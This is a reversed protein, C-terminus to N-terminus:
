RARGVCHCPQAGDFLSAGLKPENGRKPTVPCPNPAVVLWVARPLQKPGPSPRADRERKGSTVLSVPRFM